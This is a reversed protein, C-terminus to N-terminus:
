SDILERETATEIPVRAPQGMLPVLGYVEGVSRAADILQQRVAEDIADGVVVPAKVNYKDLLARSLAEARERNTKCGIVPIAGRAAVAHAIAQGLGGSGGALIITKGKM